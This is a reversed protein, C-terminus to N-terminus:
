SHTLYPTTMLLHIMVYVQWQWLDGSLDKVPALLDKELADLAEQRSPVNDIGLIKSLRDTPISTSSSPDAATQVLKVFDLPTEDDDGVHKEDSMSDADSDRTVNHTRPPVYRDFFM